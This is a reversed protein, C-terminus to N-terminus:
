PKPELVFTSSTLTHGKWYMGDLRRSLRKLSELLAAIAEDSPLAAGSVQDLNRHTLWLLAGPRAGDAEIRQVKFCELEPAHKKVLAILEEDTSEPAFNSIWLKEV